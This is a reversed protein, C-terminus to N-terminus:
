GASDRSGYTPGVVKNRDGATRIAQAISVAAEADRTGVPPDRGERLSRVFAELEVRLPEQRDLSFRIMNGEGSPRVQALSPWETRGEPHEYLYLDQTLYDVVLMGLEGTVSLQRVKTPTIWNTELLGTAETDFRLTACILDEVDNDARRATEAFVRTVEGGTLYRMVDIDHTALDLAVGIMSERGPDPSLRRAHLQHIRGIVGEELKRKLAVVAPNFREVYGVGIPVGARTADAELARIAESSPGGPKEVLAPLELAVAEAAVDALQAVPVAICAFDPQLDAVADPLTEYTRIGPRLRLAADRRSGDPDTVGAVEIDPTTSLVRVHNSGMAGAGVVVARMPSEPSMSDM